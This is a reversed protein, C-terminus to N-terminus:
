GFYAHLRHGIRAICLLIVGDGGSNSELLFVIMGNNFNMSPVLLNERPRLALWYFALGACSEVVM